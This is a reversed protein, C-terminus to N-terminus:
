IVAVVVFIESEMKIMFFGIFCSNSFGHKKLRNIGWEIPNDGSAQERGSKGAWVAIQGSIFSYLAFNILGNSGQWTSM